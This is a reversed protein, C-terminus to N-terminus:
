REVVTELTVLTRERPDRAAGSVGAGEGQLKSEHVLPVVADSELVLKEAALVAARRADGPAAADAAAVAADVAPDCLGSINYTGGCTFDSAMFAVPDGSDLVTSRSLIFADFEGALADTEIQAYERVVQEVEFGAAELQQEVQVALEPLEPRDSYTALTVHVGDVDAAPTATRAPRSSAWGFAPSLLGEGADAYGEYVAEVLADVDVAERAAARTGADAFVGDRTDLLLETTRSTSVQQLQSAEVLAAQAVPVAEVLDAEGSRLAAARATGDPVFSVDVGPSAATGGWYADNRQLTATTTGELATLEFMGTATGLPSPLGDGTYASPALVSLQPSSLRQPLLPDAEATRVLVADAADPDVEAELGVGDLIRPAPAAAAAATLSDAVAEATMATGDHFSVGQRLTFRWTTGDVRTWATALMPQADGADDLQVLTEAIALRSLTFADDSLPSLGAAPTMLVAVRLRDAGGSTSGQGAFCGALASTALVACLAGAARRAAGPRRARGARPLLPSSVM